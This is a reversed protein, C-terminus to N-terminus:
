LTMVDYRWLCDTGEHRAPAEAVVGCYGWGPARSEVARLLAGRGVGAVSHVLPWSCLLVGKGGQVEVGEEEVDEERGVSWAGLGGVAEM